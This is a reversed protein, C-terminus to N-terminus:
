VNSHSLGRIARYTESVTGKVDRAHQGFAATSINDTAIGMRRLQGLLQNFTPIANCGVAAAIINDFSVM